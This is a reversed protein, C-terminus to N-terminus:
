ALIQNVKHFPFVHKKLLYTAPSKEELVQAVIPASKLVFFISTKSVVTWSRIM